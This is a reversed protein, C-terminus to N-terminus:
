TSLSSKLLAHFWSAYFIKSTRLGFVQYKPTGIKKQKKANLGLWMWANSQM